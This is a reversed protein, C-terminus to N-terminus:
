PGVNGDKVLKATNANNGHGIAGFGKNGAVNGLDGLDGLWIPNLPSPLTSEPRTGLTCAWGKSNAPVRASTALGDVESEARVGATGGHQDVACRWEHWM